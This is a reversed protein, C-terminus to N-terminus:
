LEGGFLEHEAEGRCEDRYTEECWLKFSKQVQHLASLVATRSIEDGLCARDLNMLARHIQEDTSLSQCASQYDKFREVSAIREAMLEDARAEIRVEDQATLIDASDYLALAAEVPIASPIPLDRKM